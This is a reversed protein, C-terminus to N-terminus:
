FLLCVNKTRNNKINIVGKKMRTVVPLALIDHLELHSLHGSGRHGPGTEEPGYEESRKKCAKIHVTTESEEIV